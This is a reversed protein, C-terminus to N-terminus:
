SRVETTSVFNISSWAALFHLTAEFSMHLFGHVQWGIMWVWILSCALDYVTNKSERTNLELSILVYKSYVFSFISHTMWIHSKSEYFLYKESSRHPLGIEIVSLSIIKYRFNPIILNFFPIHKTPCEGFTFSKLYIIVYSIKSYYM